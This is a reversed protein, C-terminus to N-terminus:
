KKGASKPREAKYVTKAAPMAAGILAGIGAYGAVVGATDGARWNDLTHLGAATTAGLGAGIAVGILTNRKRNKGRVSLRHIQDRPIVVERNEVNLTVETDSFRVFKGSTTKLSNEVVQVGSGPRIQALNQWQSEQAHLLPALLASAWLCRLFWRTLSM